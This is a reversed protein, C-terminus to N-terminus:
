NIAVPSIDLVQESENQAIKKGCQRCFIADPINEDYGCYQCLVRAKTSEGKSVTVESIQNNSSSSPEQSQQLEELKKELNRKQSELNELAARKAKVKEELTAAVKEELQRMEEKTAQMKQDLSTCENELEARKKQPQEPVATASM